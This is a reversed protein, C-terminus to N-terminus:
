SFFMSALKAAFRDAIVKENEDRVEYAHVAAMQYQSARTPILATGSQNGTRQAETTEAAALRAHSTKLGRLQYCFRSECQPFQACRWVIHFDCNEPHSIHATDRGCAQGLHAM